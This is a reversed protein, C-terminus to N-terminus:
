PGVAHPDLGIFGRRQGGRAIALDDDQSQEALREQDQAETKLIDQLEDTRLLAKECLTLASRAARVAQQAAEVDQAARGAETARLALVAVCSPLVTHRWDKGLGAGNRRLLEDRWVQAERWRLGAAQLAAQAQALQKQAASLKAMAADKRADRTKRLLRLLPTM